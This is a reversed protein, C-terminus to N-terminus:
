WIQPFVFDNNSLFPLQAEQMLEAIKLTIKAEIKLLKISCNFPRYIQRWCFTM